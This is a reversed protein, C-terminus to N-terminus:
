PARGALPADAQVGCPTRHQRIAVRVVAMGLAATLAALRLAATAGVRPPALPGDRFLWLWAALWAAGLHPDREIFPAAVPLAACDLDNLM